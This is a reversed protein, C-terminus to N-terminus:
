ISPATVNRLQDLTTNLKQIMTEGIQGPKFIDVDVTLATGAMGSLGTLASAWANYAYGKAQEKAISAQYSALRTGQESISTSNVVAALGSEGLTYTFSGYNTYTDAIVKHANAQSEKLKSDLLVKEAIANTRSQQLNLTEEYLKGTDSLASALGTNLDVTATGVIRASEIAKTRAEITAQQKQIAKLDKDAELLDLQKELELIKLTISKEQSAWELATTMASQALATSLSAMVNSLVQGREEQTLENDDLLKQLTEKTKVYISGGSLSEKVLARYKTLVALENTEAITM